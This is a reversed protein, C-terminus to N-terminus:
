MELRVFIGNMELLVWRGGVRILTFGNIPEGTGVLKDNILALPKDGEVTMQLTLGTAAARVAMRRQHDKDAPNEVSKEETATNGEDVQSSADRGDPAFLDRTVFTPIDVIVVRRQFAQPTLEDEKDSAQERAAEIAQIIAPDAVATQPVRKLLLRGWLLLAVALLTVMIGMKKRDAMLMRLWRPKNTSM